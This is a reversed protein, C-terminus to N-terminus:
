RAAAAQRAATKATTRSAKKKAKAPVVAPVKPCAKTPQLEFPGDEAGTSDTVILEVTLRPVAPTGAAAGKPLYSCYQDTPDISGVITDGPNIFGANSGVLSYCNIGNSPTTGGCTISETSSVTGDAAVTALSSASGATYVLPSPNYDDINDGDSRVRDGVITYATIGGNCYFAYDLLDPEDQSKGAPDPSLVGSCQTTSEPLATASAPLTLLTVGVGGGGLLLAPLVLRLLLAQPKWHSM